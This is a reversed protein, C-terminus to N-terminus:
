GTRTGARTWYWGSSSRNGTSSSPRAGSRWRACGRTAASRTSWRAMATWCNWGCTTCPPDAPSWVRRRDRPVPLHLRPALDLDARAAATAVEGDADSLRARVRHGPANGSLPLELHFASGALDPTIRPRRLRVHPVPEAWVTQWIGTVRTYHCDHNAYRLAQKGRAQPGSKPDRARVTVTIEEGPGAVRHLDATFPTFGGRHRAVETGNVWVTADYDVAGFHLLVRRGAWEAPLTVTRRYWVAELFDTEGVGSLVSEPPFPVTIERDLGGTLLGRELGSDGPDFAFQWTGNLNLWDERVFQPRPYEPRPVATPASM